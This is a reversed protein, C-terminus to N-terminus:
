RAPIHFDRGLLCSFRLLFSLFYSHLALESLLSSGFESSGIVM